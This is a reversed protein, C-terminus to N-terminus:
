RFARKSMTQPSTSTHAPDILQGKWFLNCTVKIHSYKTTAKEYYINIPLKKLKHIGNKLLVVESNRGYM